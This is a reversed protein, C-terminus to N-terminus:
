LTIHLIGPSTLFEERNRETGVCDETGETLSSALSGVDGTKDPDEDMTQWHADLIGLVGALDYLEPPARLM